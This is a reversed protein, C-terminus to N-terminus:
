NHDFYIRTFASGNTEITKLIYKPALIGNNKLPERRGMCGAIAKSTDIMHSEM